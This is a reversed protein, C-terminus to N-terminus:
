EKNTKDAKAKLFTYPQGRIVAGTAELEAGFQEVAAKKAGRPAKDSIAEEIKGFGPTCADMYQKETVHLLATAKFKPMDAIERKSRSQLIHDPPIDAEGRIIRDTIQTKFAKAWCALVGALQLGLTTDRTSHIMTPTINEPIGLPHFKHGVRCAFKAVAECKGLHACFNCAPVVPNAASWDGKLAAARAAVARHVVVQVRLYLAPLDARQFVAHSISGLHPQKFYFEITELKPYRRALGLTYAIGQLNNNAQEVPWMGFKWDFLIARTHTHDIICHDVYGATTHHTGDPLTIDDVPLYAEKIELVAPTENKAIRLCGELTTNRAGLESYSFEAQEAIDRNRAEEMLQRHHEVFDLCEAAAAADDDGLSEDDIGSEAVGHAKTGATTREHVPGGQKSQYCPCAELSQLTSPSYPHHVREESKKASENMRIPSEKNTTTLLKRSFCKAATHYIVIGEPQAFGPVARSGERDLQDMVSQITGTCFSGRYLVPVVYCCPPAYAQGSTWVDGPKIWRAVNFLAFQKESLGYGRQIGAGFWEGFHRGPGLALLETKHESVWRGFGFNDAGPTLWRNRSGALIFDPRTEPIYVCANTGDIKETIVIERSLRAIRPFSQFDAEGEKWIVTSM